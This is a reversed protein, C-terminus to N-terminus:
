KLLSINKVFDNKLGSQAPQYTIIMAVMFNDQKYCYYIQEVTGDYLSLKATQFTKDAIVESGQELLKYKYDKQQLLLNITTDLYKKEDYSTGGISLALNEYMLQANINASPASVVFSYVTKLKMAKELQEKSTGNIKVQGAGMGVLASIEDDTAIKWADPVSFKMNLWENEFVHGNWKGVSFNSSETKSETTSKTTSKTTSETTSEIKSKTAAVTSNERKATNEKACGTISFALVLIMGLIIIRQKKMKGRM